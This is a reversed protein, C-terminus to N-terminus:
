ADISRFDIWCDLRRGLLLEIERVEATLESALRRRLPESLPAREQPVQNWRSLLVSPHLGLANMVTKAPLYCRGFCDRASRHLEALRRSRLVRNAKVRPFEHRGDDPLDLFRLISAYTERPKKVFEEFILVLRQPEPVEAFLRRIQKAFGCVERYQLMKAERCHRPIHQGRGREEQLDWAQAFDAVDENLNYLRESHFARVMDIPNRLIAIMRAEPSQKMIEGIAVQSFLYSASKEGITVGRPASAFLMLYEREDIVDRRGPLDYSFFHPEKSSPMFINPHASLYSRLATTGCKPAGIIFFDPMRVM